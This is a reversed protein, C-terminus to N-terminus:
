YVHRDLKDGVPFSGWYWQRVLFCRSDDLLAPKFTRCFLGAIHGEDSGLTEELDEDNNVEILGRYYAVLMIQGASFRTDRGINPRAHVRNHEVSLGTWIECFSTFRPLILNVVHTQKKALDKGVIKFEANPLIIPRFKDVIDSNKPDKRLVLM